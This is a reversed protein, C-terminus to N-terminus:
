GLGLRLESLRTAHYCVGLRIHLGATLLSVIGSGASCVLCMMVSEYERVVGVLTEERSM